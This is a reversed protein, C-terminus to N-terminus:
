KELTQSWTYGSKYDIKIGIKEAVLNL